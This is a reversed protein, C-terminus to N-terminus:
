LMYLCYNIIKYKIQFIQKTKPDLAISTITHIQSISTSREAAADTLMLGGYRCCAWTSLHMDTAGIPGFFQVNQPLTPFCILVGTPADEKKNALMESSAPAALAIGM